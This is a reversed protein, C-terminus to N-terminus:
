QDNNPQKVGPALPILDPQAPKLAAKELKGLEERAQDAALGNPYEKTVKNLFLKAEEALGMEAFSQGQKLIAEPVKDSKPYRNVLTQFEKIAKNYDRLAFYCEGIWFQANDALEGKPYAKLFNRFAAVASLYDTDRVLKLGKEYGETESALKPSVKAVAKTVQQDYIELREELASIRDNLDRKIRLIEGQQEKILHANAELTGQFLQFDTKIREVAELAEAAKTNREASDTQMSQILNELNELRGKVDDGYLPTSLLLLM